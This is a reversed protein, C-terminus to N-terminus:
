ILEAKSIDFHSERDLERRVGIAPKKVQYILFSPDRWQSYAVTSSLLEGRRGLRRSEASSLSAQAPITNGAARGGMALKTQPTCRAIEQKQASLIGHVGSSLFCPFTPRPTVSSSAVAV